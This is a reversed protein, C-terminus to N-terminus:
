AGDKKARYMLQLVKTLSLSRGLGLEACAAPTSRLTGYSSGCALVWRRGSLHTSLARIPRLPREPSCRLRPEQRDTPALSALQAKENAM